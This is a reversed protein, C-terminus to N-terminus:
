AKSSLFHPFLKRLQAEGLCDLVNFKWSAGADTSTAYVVGRIEPPRRPTIPNDFRQVVTAVALHRGSEEHLDVRLISERQMATGAREDSEVQRRYDSALAKADERPLGFTWILEAVRDWRRNRVAILFDLRARRFGLRLNSPVAHAAGGASLAAVFVFARRDIM